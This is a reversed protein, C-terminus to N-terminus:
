KPVDFLDSPAVSQTLGGYQRLAAEEKRVSALNITTQFNTGMVAHRAAAPSLDLYHTLTALAAAQHTKAYAASTAIATQWAKVQQPHSSIYSTSSAICTITGNPYLQANPHGLPKAGESIATASFPSVVVAADVRGSKVAQPMQAFPLATLHVSKGNGGAQTVVQEVDASNLSNLQVVAVNKGALQSASTIGSGPAALLVSSDHSPDPSQNGDVVSVCKVPIHHSVANILVNVTVFGFQQKGSVLDAIIPTPSEAPVPKVTLGGKAFFGKKMGLFIPGDDAYPVYGFQVTTTGGQSGSSASPKSSSGCGALLGIVGALLTAGGLFGALRQRV